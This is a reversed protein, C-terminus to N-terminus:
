EHDIDKQMDKIEGILEVALALESHVQWMHFEALDIQNTKRLMDFVDPNTHKIYRAIRALRTNSQANYIVATLLNRKADILKTTM